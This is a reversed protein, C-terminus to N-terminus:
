NSPKKDDDEVEKQREYIIDLFLTSGILIVTCYMLSTTSKNGPGSNYFVLCLFLGVLVANIIMADRLHSASGSLILGWISIVLPVIIIMAIGGVTSHSGRAVADQLHKANLAHDMIKSIHSNSGCTLFGLIPFQIFLWTFVNLRVTKDDHSFASILIVIVITISIAWEEKTM